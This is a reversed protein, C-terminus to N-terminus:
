GAQRALSHKSIDLFPNVRVTIWPAGISFEQTALFREKTRLDKVVVAINVIDEAVLVTEYHASPITHYLQLVACLPCCASFSHLSSTLTM